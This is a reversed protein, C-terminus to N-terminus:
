AERKAEKRAKDIRHRIAKRSVRMRQECEVFSYGQLLLTLLEPDDAFYKKLRTYHEPSPSSLDIEDIEVEAPIGAKYIGALHRNLVHNAIVRVWNSIPSKAPNFNQIRQWVELAVQQAIDESHESCRGWVIKLAVHRVERLFRDRATTQLPTQQRELAYLDYQTTLSM